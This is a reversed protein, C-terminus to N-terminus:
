LRPCHLGHEKSAEPETAFHKSDYSNVHSDANIMMKMMVMLNQYGPCQIAALGAVGAGIVLVQMVHANALSDQDQVM